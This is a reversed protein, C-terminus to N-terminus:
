RSRRFSAADPCTAFHSIAQSSGTPMLDYPSRANKPTTWWEIEAKCSRCVGHNEFKYGTEILQDRTKTAM